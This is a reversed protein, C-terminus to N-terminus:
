AATAGLWTAAFPHTVGPGFWVALEEVARGSRTRLATARWPALSGAPHALSQGSVGLFLEGVPVLGDATRRYVLGNPHAPDVQGGVDTLRVEYGVAREEGTAALSAAPRFGAARAAAPTPYASAGQRAASVLAAAAQAEAASTTATSAAAPSADTSPTTGASGASSTPTLSAQDITTADGSGSNAALVLWAASSAALILVVAAVALITWPRDSRVPPRPRPLGDAPGPPTGPGGAAPPVGSPAGAPGPPTVTPSSSSSDAGADSPDAIVRNGLM